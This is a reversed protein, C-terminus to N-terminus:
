KIATLIVLSFYARIDLPESKIIEAGEPAPFVLRISLATDCSLFTQVDTEWVM